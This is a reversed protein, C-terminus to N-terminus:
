EQDAATSGGHQYTPSVQLSARGGSVSTGPRQRTAVRVREQMSKMSWRDPNPSASGGDSATLGAVRRRVNRQANRTGNCSDDESAIPITDLTPPLEARLIKVQPPAEIGLRVTGGQSKLVTLVINHGINIKEGHKRSLVLM